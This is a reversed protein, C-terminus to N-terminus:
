WIVFPREPTDDYTPANNSDIPKLSFSKNTDDDSITSIHIFDSIRSFISLALEIHFDPDILDTPEFTAFITGGLNTSIRFDSDFGVFYPPTNKFHMDANPEDSCHMLAKPSDNDKSIDSSSPIFLRVRLFGAPNHYKTVDECHFVPDVTMKSDSM